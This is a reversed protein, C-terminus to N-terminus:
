QVHNAIRHWIQGFIHRGDFVRLGTIDVFKSMDTVIYKNYWCLATGLPPVQKQRADAWPATYNGDRNVGVFM